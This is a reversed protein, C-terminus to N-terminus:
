ACDSHQLCSSNDHIKVCDMQVPDLCDGFSLEPCLRVGDESFTMDDFRLVIPCVIDAIQQERQADDIDFSFATGQVDGTIRMRRSCERKAAARLLAHPGSRM